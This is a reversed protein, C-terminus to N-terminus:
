VAEYREAAAEIEDMVENVCVGILRNALAEGLVSQGFLAMNKVREEQANGGAAKLIKLFEKHFLRAARISDGGEAFARIYKQLPSEEPHTRFISSQIESM